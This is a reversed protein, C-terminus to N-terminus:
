RRRGEGSLTMTGQGDRITSRLNLVGPSPFSYHLEESAQQGMETTYTLREFEIANGKWQGRHDHYEGTSSVGMFHVVNEEADYGILLTAEMPGAVACEALLNCAM